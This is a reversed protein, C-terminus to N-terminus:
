AYAARLITMEDHQMSAPLKIGGDEKAPVFGIPM